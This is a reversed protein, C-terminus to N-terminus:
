EELSVSPSTKQPPPNNKNKIVHTQSGLGGPDVSLLIMLHALVMRPDRQAQKRREYGAGKHHGWNGWVTM